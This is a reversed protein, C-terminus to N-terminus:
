EVLEKWEGKEDKAKRKVLKGFFGKGKKGDTSSSDDRKKKEGWLASFASPGDRGDYSVISGNRTIEM